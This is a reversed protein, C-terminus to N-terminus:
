TNTLRESLGFFNLGKSKALAYLENLEDKTYDPTRKTSTIEKLLSHIEATSFNQRKALSLGTLFYQSNGNLIYQTITM